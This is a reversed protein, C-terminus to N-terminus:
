WNSNQRQPPKRVLFATIKDHKSISFEFEEDVRQFLDSYTAIKSGTKSDEALIDAWDDDHTIVVVAEPVKHLLYENILKGPHFINQIPPFDSLVVSESGQARQKGGSATGGNWFGLLWSFASSGQSQAGSNSGPSNGLQSQVIDAVDVDVVTTTFLRGSIKQSLSISFGHVFVTQNLLDNPPLPRNYHKHQAPFRGVGMWRYQPNSNAQQPPRFYAQFTDENRISHFFAMGWSSAKECGTVLYLSGNDIARGRPGQIYTYWSEAHTTAYERVTQLNELKKLEGGHPLALVAGQPARCSFVFEGGPFQDLQPDDVIKHISSTSIYNGPDYHVVTVDTPDYKPLPCFDHPVRTGNIPDDADLYINFFFDFLGESTVRGVDGIAIGNRQYETPLMESPGPAYLPFGRKRRLLQNSYIECESFNEDIINLPPPPEPNVNSTYNYVVQGIDVGAATTLFPSQLFQSPTNVVTVKPGAGTGGAGGINEGVGGTGGAGGSITTNYIAEQM